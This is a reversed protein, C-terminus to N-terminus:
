LSTHHCIRYLLIFGGRSTLECIAGDQRTDPLRMYMPLALREPHSLTLSALLGAATWEFGEDSVAYDTGMRGVQELCQRLPTHPLLRPM